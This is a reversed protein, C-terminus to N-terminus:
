QIALTVGAQTSVNGVTIVIPVATGSPATAPILVNVQMVGNVIGPATGAYLVQAPVGGVTATVSAVPTKLATAIAGDVNGITLGEGTMYVAVASGKKAPTAATPVTLLDQNLIAGPGTGSQNLTYIGPATNVVNYTASVSRAGKYAIVINTTTRGAVGYPVMVSTQGASAYIVPAAIGDFFVQTDGAITDFATGGSNLAGKVLPTPGVGTGYITINEGPSVAGVAGSAANGIGAIVPTPIATVTLSVPITLPTLSNPSTVTVTGTYTGASLSAPSVSISLPAPTTGSTPTATLWTGGDKTSTAVTFTTNAGSSTIQVTQAAPVTTGTIYSFTLSAPASTLALSSTVTFTVPISLPSGTAGSSTITVTGTYTGPALTGAAVSIQIGVNTTGSTPTATLWTGGDKTNAAVTFPLGAPTSAVAVTQAAPVTGGAIQTFTLSTPTASITGPAVTLTVPVLLPTNSAGPATITVTGNYTGASLKSGDAAITVSGPTTGTTNGTVTLWQVSGPNAAAVSFNLPQGNSTINLTQNAPANGGLTQTFTLSNSNVVLTGATLQLTVPITFPAAATANAAAGGAGTATIKVTGTYTGAALLSSPTATLFITGPTVGTTANLSLWNGGLDPTFTINYTLQDSGTSALSIAQPNSTQGGVPVIFNLGLSPTVVLQGSNSVTFNVPITLPSNPAALGTAPNTAAVTLTGTCTTGAAIGAPAASVAVTSSTTGTVATTGGNVLLFSGCNTSTPTITYNLTAGTSSGLTVVTAGPNNTGGIQYPINLTCNQSPASCGAIGATVIPDNTVSLTVPIQQAGNGTGIGTVTVTGTYTGKGLGTPDVSVSFPTPVTGAASSIKLWGGPTSASTIQFAPTGSTATVTVPQGAPLASGVQYTFNLSASPVNLLPLTSVVLTIPVDLAAPSGQSNITVKGTYTGAPLGTPDVAISFTASGLVSAIGSPVVAIWNKGAPNASVTANLSFALQQAPTVTLTVNQAAPNSQGIQFNYTLSAPNVTVAPPGTVTLTVPVTVAAQNAPTITIAGTYTGAALNPLVATNVIVSLSTPTTGSTPAVQLWNGGSTTSVAATYAVSPGTLNLIQATPFSGNLTYSLNLSQPSVGLAGVTFTVPVQLTSSGGTITLTASVTGFGLASPDATVTLSSPTNGSTPNVKLWTTNTSATFAQGATASSVTVTQSSAAGGSQGTFALSSPAVTLTQGAGAAVNFTVPITLNNFATITVTGQVTGIGLGTPDATVTLTAPSAGTLPNVKLWSASSSTTFVQGSSGTLSLTQSVISGGQQGNFTLSSKDVAMQADISSLSGMAILSVVAGVFASPLKV